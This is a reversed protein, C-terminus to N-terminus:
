TRRVDRRASQIGLRTRRLKVNFDNSAVTFVRNGSGDLTGQIANVVQGGGVITLASGTEGAFTTSLANVTNLATTVQSRGIM